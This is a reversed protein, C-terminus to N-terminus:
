FTAGLKGLWRQRSGVPFGNATPGGEEKHQRLRLLRPPGPSIIRIPSPLVSPTLIRYGADTDNGHWPSPYYHSSSSAKRGYIRM